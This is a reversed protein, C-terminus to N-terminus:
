QKKISVAMLDNLKHLDDFNLKFWEGRVRKKSFLIHLEKEKLVSGPWYTILKIEPEQSQLTKERYGVKKSSGIKFHNNRINLMLYIYKDSDQAVCEAKNEFFSKYFSVKEIITIQYLGKKGVLAFVPNQLNKMFDSDITIYGLMEIYSRTQNQFNNFTDVVDLVPYHFALYKSFYFLLSDREEDDIHLTLQNGQLENAGNIYILQYSKESLDKDAILTFFHKRLGVIVNNLDASNFTKNMKLISQPSISFCRENFLDDIKQQYEKSM